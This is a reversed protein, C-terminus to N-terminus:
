DEAPAAGYTYQSVIGGISLGIVVLSLLLYLVYTKAKAKDNKKLAQYLRVGLYIDLVVALLLSFYGLNAMKTVLKEGLTDSSPVMSWIALLGFAGELYPLLSDLIDQTTNDAVDKVDLNKPELVKIWPLNFTTYIPKLLLAMVILSLAITPFMYAGNYVISYTVSASSFDPTIATVLGDGDYATLNNFVIVGSFFHSVFRLLGVGLLAVLPAFTKKEFFQKRFISALGIIGFAVVYDLLSCVLAAFPNAFWGAAGDWLLDFLGFAIAIVTGWVPGCYLACLVLPVLIVTISGGQPFNLFPFLEAFGKLVLSLSLMMASIVIESVAKKSKSRSSVSETEMPTQPNRDVQSSNKEDM